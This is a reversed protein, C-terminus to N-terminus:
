FNFCIRAVMEYFSFHLLRMRQHNNLVQAECHGSPGVTGRPALFAIPKPGRSVSEPRGSPAKARRRATAAPRARAPAWADAEWVGAQQAARRFLWTASASSEPVSASRAGTAPGNRSRLNVISRLELTKDAARSLLRPLQRGRRPMPASEVSPSSRRGSTSTLTLKGASDGQEASCQRAPAAMDVPELGSRGPAV